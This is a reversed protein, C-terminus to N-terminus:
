TIGGFVSFYSKCKVLDWPALIGSKLHFVDIGSLLWLTLGQLLFSSFDRDFILFVKFIQRFADDIVM